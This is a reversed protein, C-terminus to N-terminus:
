QPCNQPKISSITIDIESGMEIKSGFSYPPYQSTIYAQSENEIIGEPTINGIKLNQSDLLFGAVYVTKCTLNPVDLMGGRSKSLVFSLKGGKPVTVGKGKINKGIIQKDGQWVELIYDPEGTDYKYGKIETEIGLYGLETKKAIYTAGYLVPMDELKILDAQYKAVTIYVTRNEKVKSYAVPVQDLIEGGRIGVRHISDKIVLVFSKEDADKKASDYNIGVYDPLELQQGHNTYSKLWFLTILIVIILVLAM